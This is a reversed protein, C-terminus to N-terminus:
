SNVADHSDFEIDFLLQQIKLRALANKKNSLRHFIPVCSLLFREDPDNSTYLQVTSSKAHQVNNQQHLDDDNTTYVQSYIQTGVPAQIIEKKTDILQKTLMNDPDEEEEPQELEEDYELAIHSQYETQTPLCVINPRSTVTINKIQTHGHSSPQSQSQVHVQTQGDGNNMDDDHDIYDDELFRM